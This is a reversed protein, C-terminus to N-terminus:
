LAQAIVPYESKVAPHEAADAMRVMAGLRLARVEVEIRGLRTEQLANIDVLVEPRMVDLKMLDILTTGGALYQVSSAAASHGTAGAFARLAAATNEASEYTFPRM